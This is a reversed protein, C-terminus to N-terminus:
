VFYIDQGPLISGVHPSSNKRGAWIDIEPPELDLERASHALALNEGLGDLRELLVEVNQALSALDSRLVEGGYGIQVLRELELKQSEYSREIEEYQGRLDDLDVM